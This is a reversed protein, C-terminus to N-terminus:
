VVVVVVVVVIIIIIIIIYSYQYRSLFHFCYDTGQEFTKPRQLNKAKATTYIVIRNNQSLSFHKKLRM